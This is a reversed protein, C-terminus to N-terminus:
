IGEDTNEPEIDFFIEQISATDYAELRDVWVTGISLSTVAAFLPVDLEDMNEIDGTIVVPHQGEITPSLGPPFAQLLGLQLQDAHSKKTALAHVHYFVTIPTPFPKITYSAPGTATVGTALAMQPPVDITMEAASAVAIEIAPRARHSDVRIYMRSFALCPFQTEGKEREPWYSYVKMPVGNHLIKSLRNFMWTDLTDLM